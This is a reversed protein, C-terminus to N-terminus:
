DKEVLKDITAGIVAIAGLSVEPLNLYLAYIAAALIGIEAILIQPRWKM